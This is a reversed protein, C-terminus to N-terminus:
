REDDEGSSYIREANCYGCQCDSDEWPLCDERRAGDSDIENLVAVVRGEELARDSVRVFDDPLGSGDAAVPGTWFLVSSVTGM